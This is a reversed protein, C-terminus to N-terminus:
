LIHADCYYQLSQCGNALDIGLDYRKVSSSKDYCSLQGGDRTLVVDYDFLFRYFFSRFPFNSRSIAYAYLSTATSNILTGLVTVLVTVFLAQFIKDQMQDFLYTYGFISFKEPWFSYGHTSLISEDTFSIAIVFIFPLICSIAFLAIMINSFFNATKNFSRVQVREVKKKKM